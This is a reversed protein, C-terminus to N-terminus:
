IKPSFGIITIITIIATLLTDNHQSRTQRLRGGKVAGAQGGGWGVLWTSNEPQVKRFLEPNVPPAMLAEPGSVLRVAEPQVKLLLLACSSPPAM